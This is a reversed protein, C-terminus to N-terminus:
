KHNAYCLKMMEDRERTRNPAFSKDENQKCGSRMWSIGNQMEIRFERTPSSVQM